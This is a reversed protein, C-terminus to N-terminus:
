KMSTILQLLRWKSVTIQVNKTPSIPAIKSQKEAATNEGNNLKDVEGYVQVASSVLLFGLM